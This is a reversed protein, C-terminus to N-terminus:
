TPTTQHSVDQLFAKKELRAKQALDNLRLLERNREEARENAQQLQGIHEALSEQMTSFSNQLQGILDTRRTRAMPEGFHGSAIYQSQSVLQNLPSVFQSITRM